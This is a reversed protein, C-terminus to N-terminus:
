RALWHRLLPGLGHAETAFARDRATNLLNLVGAHSTHDSDNFAEITLRQGTVERITRMLMRDVRFSAGAARLAGRLCHRGDATALRNKCWMDETAIVEMVREVEAAASTRFFFRGDYPM